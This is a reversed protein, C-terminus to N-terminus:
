VEGYLTVKGSEKSKRVDIVRQNSSGSYPLTIDRLQEMYPGDVVVDIYDLVELNQIDEYLYGTWLWISKDPYAEKVIKAILTVDERNDPYLPDGGSFTLGKIFPQDIYELLETLTELTFPSGSLKDWTGANHCGKCKHNCGSVWLVVRIGPGNAVDYRTIKQYNM